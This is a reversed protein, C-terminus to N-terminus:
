KKHHRVTPFVIYICTITYNGLPPSLHCDSNKPNQISNLHCNMQTSKINLIHLFSIHRCLLSIFSRYVKYLITRNTFDLRILHAPCTARIPLIYNHLHYQHPLRLSLPWQPSWSKSSFIINLHFKLFHPHTTPVPHLQSLIPVPPTRM